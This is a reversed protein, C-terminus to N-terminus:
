QICRTGSDQKVSETEHKEIEQRVISRVGDAGAVFDCSVESGDAAVLIAAQEDNKVIVVRKSTSLKSKDRISEYLIQLVQQREM